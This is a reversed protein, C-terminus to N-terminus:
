GLEGEVWCEIYKIENNKPSKGCAVIVAPKFLWSGDRGKGGVDGQSTDGVSSPVGGIKLTRV